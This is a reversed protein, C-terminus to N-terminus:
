NLKIEGSSAIRRKSTPQMLNIQETVPKIPFPNKCSKNRIATIDMLNVIILCQNGFVLYPHKIFINNM